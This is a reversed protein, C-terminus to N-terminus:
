HEPTRTAENTERPDASNDLRVDLTGPPTQPADSTDRTPSVKGHTIQDEAQPDPFVISPDVGSRPVPRDEPDSPLPDQPPEQAAMHLVHEVSTGAPAPQQPTGPIVQEAFLTPPLGTPHSPSRAPLRAPGQPNEPNSFPVPPGGSSSPADLPRQASLDGSSSIGPVGTVGKLADMPPKPGPRPADISM